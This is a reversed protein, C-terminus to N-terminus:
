PSVKQSALICIERLRQNVISHRYKGSLIKIFGIIFGFDIIM